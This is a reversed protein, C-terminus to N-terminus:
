QDSKISGEEAFGTHGEVKVEEMNYIFNIINNNNNTLLGSGLKYANNALNRAVFKIAAQLKM